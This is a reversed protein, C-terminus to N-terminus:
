TVTNSPKENFDAKGIQFMNKGRYKQEQVFKFWASKRQKQLIKNYIQFKQNLFKQKQGGSEWKQM